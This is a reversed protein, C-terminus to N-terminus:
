GVLWHFIAGDFSGSVFYEEHFPHWALATFIFSNLLQSM